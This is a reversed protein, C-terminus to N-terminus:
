GCWSHYDAKYKPRPQKSPAPHQPGGCGLSAARDRCGGSRQAATLVVAPTGQAAWFLQGREGWQRAAPLEGLVAGQPGPAAPSPQQGAAASLEDVRQQRHPVGPHSPHSNHQPSLVLCLGAGTCGHTSQGPPHTFAQCLHLWPPQETTCTESSARRRQMRSAALLFAGGVTSWEAHRLAKVEGLSLILLLYERLGRQWTM